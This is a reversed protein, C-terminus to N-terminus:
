FRFSLEAGYGNRGLPTPALFVVSQEDPVIWPVKMTLGLIFAAAGVLQGTGVVAWALREGSDHLNSALYIFPGAFPLLLVERDDGDGGVAAAKIFGMGYSVGFLAAGGIVLWKRARKELHYGLPVGRAPDFREAEAPPPTEDSETPSASALVRTPAQRRPQRAVDVSPPPTHALAQEGHAVVATQGLAHVAVFTLWAALNRMPFAFWTSSRMTLCRVPLRQGLTGLVRNRRRRM